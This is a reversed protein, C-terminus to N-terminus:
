YEYQIKPFLRKTNQSVIEALKEVSLGLLDAVYEGVISVNGPFNPKGRLPVPSLFPSDTELLIRDKPMYKLVQRITDAQPFTCIGNFSLYFGRELLFKAQDLDSTFCHVVGKLGRNTYKDLVERTDSEADRSHIISPLNTEVALDLQSEFAEIQDSKSSHNYYFDFGCEGIGVIKKDNIVETRIWDLHEQNFESANHPHFGFTGYVQEFKKCFQKIKLNSEQDTGISICLKMEQQFSKELNDNLDGKLMELHCHSDIWIRSNDM